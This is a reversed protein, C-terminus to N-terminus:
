TATYAGSLTHVHTGDSVDVDFVGASTPPTVGEITTDSTVVATDDNDMGFRVFTPTGGPIAANFNTGNIVYPVGGGHAGSSPVINSLTFDAPAADAAPPAIMGFARLQLIM